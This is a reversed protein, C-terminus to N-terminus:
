SIGLLFKPDEELREMAKEELTIEVDVSRAGDSGGYLYVMGDFKNNSGSRVHMPGGWGFDVEYVRFRPSSGVAVCNMGADRFNYLKPEKEWEECKQSIAKSTHSDILRQLTEAGLQVPGELLADCTLPSYIGQILNGFYSDTMPPDIRKRCDVFVTFISVDGPQLGRAKSVAKWVHASLSQFASLPKSPAGPDRAKNTQSKIAEVADGSFHFIRERMHGRNNDNDDNEPPKGNEHPSISNLDPIDLKLRTDRSQTRDHFPLLSPTPYGNSLEAWSSMFHWTSNGDLVAHNFACGLAMGDRLKTVQVSLLPLTFGQFNFVGTYPVILKLLPSAEPKSLDEIGIGEGLAEVFEVGEDNCEIELAGDEAKKLRGSLPFFYGLVDRLKEKLGEVREEFGIEAPKKREGGSEREEFGGNTTNPEKGNGEDEDKEREEFGNSIPEKREGNERKDFDKFLLLKQNYFFTVYPLDFTVLPITEREAKKDPKITSKRKITVVSHNDSAM